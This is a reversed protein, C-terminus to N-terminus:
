GISIESISESFPNDDTCLDNPGLEVLDILVHDAGTGAFSTTVVDAGPGNARDVREGWGDLTDPPTDGTAAYFNVNYPGNEFQVTLDNQLPADFSLVVGVRGKAGMFRNSYCQTRWSTSTDGDTLRALQEDFEQGDGGGSVPDFVASSVISSPGAAPQEDAPADTIIPQPDATADDSVVGEDLADDTAIGDATAPDDPLSAAPASSGDGGSFMTFWIISAVVVALTILGGVVTASPGWRQDMGKAPAGRQHGAPPTRDASSPQVPQRAPAPADQVPPPADARTVGVRTSPTPQVPIRGTIHPPEGIVNVPGSPL